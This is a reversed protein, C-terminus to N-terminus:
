PSVTTGISWMAIRALSFALWSAKRGKRTQGATRPGAPVTHGEDGGDAVSEGARGKSKMESM